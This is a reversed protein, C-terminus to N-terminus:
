RKAVAGWYHVGAREFHKTMIISYGDPAVLAALWPKILRTWYTARTRSRDKPLVNHVSHGDPHRFYPNLGHQQMQADTGLLGVAEAKRAHKWFARIAGYPYAYADADCLAFTDGVGPFPWGEDCDGVIVSAVALAARAVAVRAPDLDIGYITREPYCALPIDGSGIFPVYAAGDGVEALVARRLWMKRAPHEGHQKQVSSPSM